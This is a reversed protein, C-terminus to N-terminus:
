EDGLGMADWDVTEWVDGFKRQLRVDMEGFRQGGDYHFPALIRDITEQGISCNARLAEQAKETKEEMEGELRELQIGLAGSFLFECMMDDTPKGM